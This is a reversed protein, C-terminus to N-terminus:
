HRCDERASLRLIQLTKLLSNCGFDQGVPQRQDYALPRLRRNEAVGGKNIRAVHVIGRALAAQRMHEFVQGELSGALDAGLIVGGLLNGQGSHLRGVVGVLGFVQLGHAPILLLQGLQFLIEFVGFNLRM